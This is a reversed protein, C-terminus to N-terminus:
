GPLPLTALGDARLDYFVWMPVGQSQWDDIAAAFVQNLTRFAAPDRAALTEAGSLLLVYGPAACWSLDSLCDKLADYNCGYWRPFALERGLQALVLEIRAADALSVDFVALGAAVAAAKLAAQHSRALHYVGAQSADELLRQVPHPSIAM